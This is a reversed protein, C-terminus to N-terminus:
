ERKEKENMTGHGGRSGQGKIREGATEANSLADEVLQVTHLVEIESGARKLANAIQMRCGPCGTVVASAGTAMINRAKEEAIGDSLKRHTIRMVGGFGCCRDADHMEVLTLGPLSHLIGRVTGSLGQGRGLHCPDHYTVTKRVPGASLGPLAKAVFEHIDLVAPATGSHRLLRPYEEKFTLGCSACATVIADAGIARFIATNRAALEEAAKRDGLSLLPRGCCRLGGPIVVEYGVRGLVSLVARGIDKQFSNTACGPFFVVRGRSTERGKKGTEGSGLVRFASSLRTGKAYHLVMPAFWATAGLAAPHQLIGSIVRSIIGRGSEAVAQEKAAQIIEAVPVHNPCSAVCALCSTCTALRDKFIESVALRGDLVANVIAMRGRASQSESREHLFTPCVARCAGCRVCREIGGRYPELLPTPTSPPSTKRKM